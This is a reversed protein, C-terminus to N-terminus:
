GGAIESDIDVAPMEGIDIGHDHAFSRGVDPEEEVATPAGTELELLLRASNTGGVM